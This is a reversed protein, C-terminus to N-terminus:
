PRRGDMAVQKMVESKFNEFAVYHLYTSLGNIFKYYTRNFEGSNLLPVLKTEVFRLRVRAESLGQGAWSSGFSLFEKPMRPKIEEVKIELKRIDDETFLTGSDKVAGVLIGSLTGFKVQLQTLVSILELDGEEERILIKCKDLQVSFSDILGAIEIVASDKPVDKNGIRSIGRDEIKSTTVRAM